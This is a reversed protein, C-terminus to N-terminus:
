PRLVVLDGGATTVWLEKGVSGVATSGVIGLDASSVARGTRLDMGVLRDAGHGLAAVWVIGGTAACQGLHAVRATWLARGTDTDVRALRAGDALFVAGRAGAVLDTYRTSFARVRAGTRGDFRAVRGGTSLVWLDGAIARAGRVGEGPAAVRIRATVRGTLADVRLAHEIAVLWVVNGIPVPVAGAVGRGGPNRPVIRATIRNTRPDIRVLDGGDAIQETAWVAGHGVALAPQGRLPIRATVRHTASDIRLIAPRKTDVLWASGFGSAVAGLDDGLALRAVVPPGSPGAPGATRPTVLDIALLAVVGIVVVVAIAVPALRPIGARVAVVARGPARRQAERDAADQLAKGLRTVFDDTM